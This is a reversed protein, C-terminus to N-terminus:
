AKNGVQGCEHVTKQGQGLLDVTKPVCFTGRYHLESWIEQYSLASVLEPYGLASWREM